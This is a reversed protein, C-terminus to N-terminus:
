KKSLGEEGKLVLHRNLVAPKVSEQREPAIEGGVTSGDM